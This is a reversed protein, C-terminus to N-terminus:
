LRPSLHVDTEAATAARAGEIKDGCYIWGDAHVWYKLKVPVTKIKEPSATAIALEDIETIEKSM